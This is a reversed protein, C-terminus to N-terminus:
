ARLLATERLVQAVDQDVDPTFILSEFSHLHQLVLEHHQPVTSSDASSHDLRASVEFLMQQLRHLMFRLRPGKASAGRLECVQMHSLIASVAKSVILQLHNKAENQAADLMEELREINEETPIDDANDAAM